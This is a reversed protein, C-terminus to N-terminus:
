TANPLSMDRFHAAREIRSGDLGDEDGMFLDRINVTSRQGVDDFHEALWANTARRGKQFLMELFPAETNLKSSAGLASLAPEDGVM